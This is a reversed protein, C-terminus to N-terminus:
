TNSLGLLELITIGKTEAITQLIQWALTVIGVLLAIISIGLARKAYKINYKKARNDLDRDYEQKEIEKISHLCDEYIPSLYQSQTIFIDGGSSAVGIKKEYLIDYILPWYNGALEKGKECTITNNDNTIYEIISIFAQYYEKTKMILQNKVQVFIIFLFKM